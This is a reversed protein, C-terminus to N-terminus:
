SSTKETRKGEPPCFAIENAVFSVMVKIKSRQGIEIEILTLLAQGGSPLCKQEDHINIHNFEM